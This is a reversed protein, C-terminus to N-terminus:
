LMLWIEMRYINESDPYYKEASFPQTILNHRPLWINFLYRLAQDLAVTVLKEHSEAEISCVIYEGPSLEQRVISHHFIEPVTKALCGTFYSFTGNQTNGAYSMGLEAEPVLYNEILKKKNHFQKWLQGPIDVGTSEGVPTQQSVPVEAKLGFYIEKQNLRKRNIELVIDDVILPIGEDIVVYNMGLEPKIVTNLLPLTKRYEDPSIGYAMKFARTFNAHNSFGYDLAIELIRKDTIELDKAARALRRMKEYEGVTKNVLRAFLRQFYFPSLGVTEALTATDIEDKLHDEIYDVATQIAEWAHM